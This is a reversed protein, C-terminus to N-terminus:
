AQRLSDGPTDLGTDDRASLLYLSSVFIIGYAFMWLATIALPSPGGGWVWQILAYGFYGGVLWKSWRPWGRPWGRQGAASQRDAWVWDRKLWRIVFLLGICVFAQANLWRAMSGLSDLTSGLLTALHAVVGVVVGAVGIVALAVLVLRV